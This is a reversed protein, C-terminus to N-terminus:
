QAVESESKMKMCGVGINKGPSDWPRRPRTPQQRHPQVSDSVVSAVAAFIMDWDTAQRKMRKIHDKASCFIKIKTLDLKDIIERM